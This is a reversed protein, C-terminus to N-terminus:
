GVDEVGNPAGCGACFADLRNELGAAGSVLAALLGDGNAGAVVWVGPAVAGAADAVVCFGSKPPNLKPPVLEVGPVVDAAVVLVVVAVVV